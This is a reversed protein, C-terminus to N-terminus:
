EYQSHAKKVKELLYEQFGIEPDEGYEKAWENYFDELSEFFISYGNDAFVMFDGCESMQSGELQKNVYVWAERQVENSMFTEGKLQLLNRFRARYWMGLDTKFLVPTLSQFTLNKM